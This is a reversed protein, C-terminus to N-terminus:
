ETSGQDTSPSTDHETEDLATVWGDPTKRRRAGARKVARKIQDISYGEAEGANYLDRSLVPGDALHETLWEDLDGNGGSARGLLDRADRQTDGIWELVGTTTEGDATETTHRVVRGAVSRLDSLNRKTNTVIVTGDDEDPAVSLVSRPVQSWAISGVMLLGSDTSERKGFHAIGLVVSRTTEALRVLSELMARVDRDTDRDQRALLSKAPDIVVLTVNHDTIFQRLEEEDRPVTLGPDHETATDLFLVRDLDADSARLRPVIIHSRPEEPSAIWLVTGGARTERAAWNTVVTSKGVGERGAVLTLMDRPILKPEWWDVRRTTVESARTAIFRPGSEHEDTPEDPLPIGDDDAEPPEVTTTAADTGNTTAREARRMDDAVNSRPRNGRQRKAARQSM